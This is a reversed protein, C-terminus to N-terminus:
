KEQELADVMAEADVLVDRAFNLVIVGEKMLGLADKRIMGKTSDLAPVHLPSIIVTKMFKM